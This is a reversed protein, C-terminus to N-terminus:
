TAYVNAPELFDLQVRVLGQSFDLLVGLGRRLIWNDRYRSRTFDLLTLDIFLKYADSKIGKNSSRRENKSPLYSKLHKGGM